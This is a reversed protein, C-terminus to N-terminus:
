QAGETKNCQRKPIGRLASFLQKDTSLGASVPILPIHLRNMSSQLSEQRAEAVEAFSARNKQSRTNLQHTRFGDTISYLGAVPLQLEMPDYVQIALLENHRQLLSLQRQENEGLTQFDSIMVILTGPKIIRRTQRLAHNLANEQEPRNISKLSLAHNMDCAQQLLRLVTKKDRRPKYEHHEFDNYLLGGVRDGRHLAQWALLAFTEAATVSKFNLQSGFFLSLKQDLLFFVPREREERFVKTYPKGFRATVRWDIMRIDDGPQYDRFEDFAMGRGRLKSQYSGSQQARAAGQQLGPLKRASVHLRALEELSTYAGSM